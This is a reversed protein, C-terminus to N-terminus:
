SKIRSLLATYKAAIESGTREKEEGEVHRRRRDLENILEVPDVKTAGVLRLCERVLRAFPGEDRRFEQAHHATRAPETGTAIMWTIRLLMVFKREADRKSFNRRPEPAYRFPQFAPRSRKGSPRRRGEVFRGGFSCLSMITECAVDRLSEDLLDGPAPLAIKRPAASTRTVIEGRRNTVSVKPRDRRQKSKYNHSRSIREARQTLLERARPSLERLCDAVVKHQRREAARYLKEIEAHLENDDPIRAQQAYVRVADKIGEGFGNIDAGSPM